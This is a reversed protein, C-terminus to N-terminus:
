KALLSLPDVTVAGYRVILHLHPGTVRGTAGVRGIVQGRQVTDGLTVLQSSLHLYATSLGAGHDIYVVNGGYYFADVIRVVGRNVALVPAGPEGAFDTGMHRSTITGNYERGGGFGSTIRSERPQTFPETWLQPTDHARRAMDVARQSEREIRAATPPDPPTGFAPAVTLREIPYNGSATRAFLVISDRAIGTTCLVVIRVSDPGDIAVAAFSTGGMSDSAFHLPEGSAHGDLQADRTVGTVRVKFLAGRTPAAPELAVKTAAGCQAAAIDPTSPGDPEVGLIWATAAAVLLARPGRGLV